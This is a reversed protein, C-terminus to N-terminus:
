IGFRVKQANFNQRIESASLVKDSVRALAIKGDFFEYGQIDYVGIKLVANPAQSLTSYPFTGSANLSGNIYIQWNGSSFTAAAYYWTSTSLETSYASEWSKGTSYSDSGVYLTYQEGTINGYSLLAASSDASNANFWCETTINDTINLSSSSVGSIYKSDANFSFFGGNLGSFSPNNILTANSKNKSRDIWLAGTGSYSNKDAADLVLVLNSTSIKPGLFCPM